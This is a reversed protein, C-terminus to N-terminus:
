GMSPISPINVINPIRSIGSSFEYIGIDPPGIIPNGEYDMTLGVDVGANIATSGSLLHFDKQDTLTGSYKWVEEGTITGNARIYAIQDRPLLVPVGTAQLAQFFWTWEDQSLETSAHSYINAIAGYYRVWEVLGYADRKLLTQDSQTFITYPLRGVNWIDIGKIGVHTASDYDGSFYSEAGANFAGGGIAEMIIAIADRAEEDSISSPITITKVTYGPINTQIDTINGGVEYDYWKQGLEINYSLAQATYDKLYTSTVAGRSNLVTATYTASAAVIAAAAQTITKGTLDISINDAPDAASTTLTDSAITFTCDGGSYSLAIAPRLTLTVHGRTHAVIEHGAGALVALRTWDGASITGSQDVAFGMRFGYTVAIAAITEFYSLNAFDDMIISISGINYRPSVFGPIGTVPNNSTYTHSAVAAAYRPATYIVSNNVTLASAAVDFLYSLGTGKLGLMITNNLVVSTGSDGVFITGNLYLFSYIISNNIIWSSTGAATMHVVTDHIICYNLTASAANSTVASYSGYSSNKFESRNFVTIGGSLYFYAGGNSADHIVKNCTLTFAANAGNITQWGSAGTLLTLNQLTITGASMITVCHNNTSTLTVTGTHGVASSGIITIGNVGKNTSPDYILRVGTGTYTGATIEVIDGTTTTANVATQITTAAKAWTDYPATNSGSASVYFTAAM